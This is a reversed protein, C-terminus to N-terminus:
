PQALKTVPTNNTPRLSKVKCFGAQECNECKTEVGIERMEEPTLFMIGLWRFVYDSISSTEPICPNPTRGYPEFRVNAFKKVMMKLPIGYQLGMSVQTAITDAMGSMTSGEKAIDIFIEGLTGDEFMGVQLTGELDAIRFDHLISMREDLLRVRVPALREELEM